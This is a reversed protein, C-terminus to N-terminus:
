LGPPATSSKPAFGIEVGPIWLLPPRGTRLNLWRGAGKDGTRSHRAKWAFASDPRKIYEDLDARAESPGILSLLVSWTALHWRM